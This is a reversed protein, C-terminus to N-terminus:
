PLEPPPAGTRRPELSFGAEMAMQTPTDLEVRKGTRCGGFAAGFLRFARFCNAEWASAHM